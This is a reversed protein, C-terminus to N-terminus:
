ASVSQQGSEVVPPVQPHIATGQNAEMLMNWPILSLNNKKDIVLCLWRTSGDANQGKAQASMVRVETGAKIKTLSFGNSVDAKVLYPINTNLM